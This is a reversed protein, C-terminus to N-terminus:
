LNLYPEHELNIVDVRLKLYAAKFEFSPISRENSGEHFMKRVIYPVPLLVADHYIHIAVSKYHYYALLSQHIRILDCM